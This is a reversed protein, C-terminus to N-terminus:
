LGEGGSSMTFGLSAPPFECRKSLMNGQMPLFPSFYSLGPSCDGLACRHRNREVAHCQCPLAYPSLEVSILPNPPPLQFSTAIAPHDSHRRLGMGSSRLMLMEQKRKWLSLRLIHLTVNALVNSLNQWAAVQLLKKGPTSCCGEGLLGACHAGRTPM